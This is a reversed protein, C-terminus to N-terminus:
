MGGAQGNGIFKSQMHRACPRHMCILDKVEAGGEGMEGADLTRQRTLLRGTCPGPCSSKALNGGERLPAVALAEPRGEHGGCGAARVGNRRGPAAQWFSIMVWNASRPSEGFINFARSFVVMVVGVGM